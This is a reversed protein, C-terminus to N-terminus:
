AVQKELTVRYGQAELRRVLNRTMRGGALEDFHGSGLEKYGVGDRLMYYVSNLISHGCAVLARKKGRRGVLRGFLASLYTQKTHSAAWGAQVLAARLWRNGKCTRGSKRKGASEHSGPCMGAWSCLHAASPFRSMDLGVEAVIVQAVRADVGPIEDLHTLESAFPAMAEEIRRELRELLRESDALEELLLSLLFRHHGDVRGELAERLAAAKAKLRGRAYGALVQPDSQGDIMAQLMARGSVGLVDSAVSALKVNADELVKQIRNATQSHRAIMQTRLRTLDRLQQQSSPPVFSGHLLGYQLLQAIWQSDKVDTKRGPVHKIHQANVLLLTFQGQLLHWVPKWYVGTSEMAVHSVQQQGLWDSLALLQGTTTGFSRIQEQGQGQGDVRRVCAQVTRKHVDLGCCCQVIVDM